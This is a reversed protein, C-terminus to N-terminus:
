AITRLGDPDRGGNLVAIAEDVCDTLHIAGIDEADIYGAGGQEDMLWNLLGSWFEVGILVTPRRETRNTNYLVLLEFLEDTTGFGGPFVVFGKSYRMLMYKRSLFYRFTAQHTLYPNPVQEHPLAINLGISVGGAEFAGQNAALMIGPGGGTIVPIGAEALRTGILRASDALHSETRTRASGFVTVAPATGDLLRAASILEKQIRAFTAADEPSALTEASVAAEDVTM